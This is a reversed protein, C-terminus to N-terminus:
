LPICIKFILFIVVKLYRFYTSRIQKGNACAMTTWKVQKEMEIGNQSIKPLVIEKIGKAHDALAYYNKDLLPPPITLFSKPLDRYKGIM